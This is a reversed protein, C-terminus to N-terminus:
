IIFIASVAFGKYDQEVSLGGVIEGEKLSYSGYGNDTMIEFRNKGYELTYVFFDLFDKYQEKTFFFKLTISNYKKIIRESNFYYPNNSTLFHDSLSVSYESIPKPLSTPYKITM